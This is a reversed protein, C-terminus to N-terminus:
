SGGKHPELERMRLGRCDGVAGSIGLIDVRCRVM